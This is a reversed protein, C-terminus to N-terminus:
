EKLVRKSIRRYEEEFEEPSFQSKVKLSLEDYIENVQRLLSVAQGVENKYEKQFKELEAAYKEDTGPKVCNAYVDIIEDEPRDPFYEHPSTSDFLCIGLGRFVVMDWSDPDFACHYIEADQGRKLAAATIKKLFTSKGTGPRGKIFYRKEVDATLDTIYDFSGRMTAAGFFRHVEGGTRDAPCDGLLRDITEATLADLAKFDTESIYVKEWDDHIKLAAAFHGYAADLNERIDDLTKELPLDSLHRSASRYLPLSWFGCGKEPLLAGQVENSICDHIVQLEIGDEEAIKCLRTYLRNTFEQPYGTLQEFRELGATNSVILSVYGQSGNSDAFFHRCKYGM